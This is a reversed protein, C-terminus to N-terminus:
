DNTYVFTQLFYKIEELIEQNLEEQDCEFYADMTVFMEQNPISLLKVLFTLGITPNLTYIDYNVWQSIHDCPIQHTQQHIIQSYDVLLVVDKIRNNKQQKENVITWKYITANKDDNCVSYIGEDSYIEWQQKTTVFYKKNKINNINKINKILQTLSVNEIFIKM